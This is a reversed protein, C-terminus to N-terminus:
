SRSPTVATKQCSPGVTHTRIPSPGERSTTSRATAFAIAGPQGATGQCTSEPANAIASTGPEYRLAGTHPTRLSVATVSRVIAAVAGRRAGLLHLRRAGPAHVAGRTIGTGREPRQQTVQDFRVTRLAPFRFAEDDPRPGVRDFLEM